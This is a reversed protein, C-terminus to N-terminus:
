NTPDSEAILGQYVTAAHEYAKRADGIQSPATNREKQTWCQHVAALCWEASRQSARIPKGDVLVFIPNTHSSPLIRIAVWSSRSIPTQFEVDHMTGDALVEQRAALKGNVVLEVPVMRSNGIRGRELDWYPKQGYDLQRVAENPFKDLLAAVKVRAKITSPGNLRVESNQTGVETGNVSFDMLHSRGDSVYTRGNRIADLWKAYTLAGDIKAYGRGQGVRGDYICPFDTEGSIRTRFGVNLTHYWISLEWVYPTDGASIFDVAGPQTVDAIYENAGIGDFAPMEFSPLENGSVELGWGSHAFGVTAKQGKAWQLIPLDWTPWDEIRKTGPYDQQHLGLLVLHGAHSSPFGSVELDYHM